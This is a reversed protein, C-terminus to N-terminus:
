PKILKGSKLLKLMLGNQIATGKYNEIHNAEAIKKRYDFSSDVGIKKLGSVISVGIYSTKPFYEVVPTAPVVTDAHMLISPSAWGQRGGGQKTAVGWCHEYKNGAYGVIYMTANNKVKAGGKGRGTGYITGNVIVKAGVFFDTKNSIVIDEKVEEKPTEQKPEEVQNSELENMLQTAYNARKQQNAESQNAPREFDLMVRIACEREDNSSTLLNLVTPYKKRLEYMLYGLQMEEDGISTGAQNRYNLLAEKRSWFTWQCLGYGASDRVFNTYEGSDVAATYQEDSLGLKRSHSNQLNNARFGSECYINAMLGYAGHMTLGNNVLWTKIRLATNKDYNM